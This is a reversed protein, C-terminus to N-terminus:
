YLPWSPLTVMSHFWCTCVSPVMVLLLGSLMIRSLSFPVLTNILTAIELSMFTISFSTFFISFYVFTVNSTGRMRLKFVFTIGTIGPAVPVMEFGSVCYRLLMGPSCSMFSSCFVAINPVACMSRSTSIYFYLVYWQMYCLNYICFLQLVTYGLLMAQKPYIITFVKFFILGKFASNFGM